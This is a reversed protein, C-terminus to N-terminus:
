SPNYRQRFKFQDSAFISPFLWAILLPEEGVNRFAHRSNAAIHVMAGVEMHKSHGNQDYVLGSGAVVIVIEETSHSHPPIWAAVEIRELGAHLENSGVTEWVTRNTRADKDLVMPAITSLGDGTVVNFVSVPSVPDVPSRNRWTTYVTIGLSFAAVLFSILTGHPPGNRTEDM